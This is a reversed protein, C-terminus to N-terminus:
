PAPITFKRASHVPQFMGRAVVKGQQFVLYSDWGYFFLLRAVPTIAEPSLGFFLSVTHNSFNPHPCTILFAMDPGEFIQDLITTRGSEMQVHKNCTKLTKTELLQRAPTGIILYSAAETIAPSDNQRVKIDPQGQIRRMLAQLSAEEEKSSTKAHVFIRRTATDWGNLMPPLQERQLRLLWHHEPDLTISMPIGPVTLTFPQTAHDLMLISEFTSEDQHKVQIPLSLKYFADNQSITGSVISQDLRLPDTQVSLDPLTVSPAGPRDIWQKFFGTLDQGAVQSFVRKLDKWEIYKGTGEQIIQRVGNFFTADGLEQRLMHFVLATKQYGVANDIRTEKHHFQHIPYDKEPTAYLNYEDMMRRRTKLAAEHNGTAEDFYYNSLYTTLGEVWNGKAFDNFVSNGLWSHVIEHGLSYPQTYGRRVISQGLLTFSPMGLGSPFFNEVVAFQTFPYPGLLKTYFDLYTTTADLYQQALPAEGPFLYTALQIDRLPKKLVVFHNAALTLAETPSHISWESTRQKETVSQNTEQGQTIAQWDSPLTLALDFTVLHQEWTPYWFTESTLYIGQPGIHGNTKDPRVFRLEGSTKPSDDIRGHYVITLTSLEDAQKPSPSPHGIKWQTFGTQSPPNEPIKSVPVTLGNFEVRDIILHPNLAFSLPTQNFLNKPLHLTDTASLRHTEPDLEVALNHHISLPTSAEVIPLTSLSGVILWILVRLAAM